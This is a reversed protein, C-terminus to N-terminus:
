SFQTTTWWEVRLRRVTYGMSCITTSIRRFSSTAEIKSRLAYYLIFRSRFDVASFSYQRQGLSPVRMPSCFDVGVVEFIRANRGAPECSIKHVESKCMVFTECFGVQQSSTYDLGEVGYTLMKNLQSVGLHGLRSHWLRKGFSM